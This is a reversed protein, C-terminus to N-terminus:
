GLKKQTNVKVWRTRDYSQSNDIRTLKLKDLIENITFIIDLIIDEKKSDFVSSRVEDYDKTSLHRKLMPQIQMFLSVLRARVISISYNINSFRKKKYDEYAELLDHRRQLITVREIDVAPTGVTTENNFDVM